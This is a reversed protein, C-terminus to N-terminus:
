TIWLRNGEWEASHQTGSVRCLPTTFCFTCRAAFVHASPNVVYRYWRLYCCCDNHLAVCVCACVCLKRCFCLDIHLHIKIFIYFYFKIRSSSLASALIISINIYHDTEKGELILLPHYSLLFFATCFVSMKLATNGIASVSSQSGNPLSQQGKKDESVMSSHHLLEHTVLEYLFGLNDLTLHTKLYRKGIKIQRQPFIFLADDKKKKALICVSAHTNISYFCEADSQPVLNEPLDPPVLRMSQAVWNVTKVLSWFCKIWQVTFLFKFSLFWIM